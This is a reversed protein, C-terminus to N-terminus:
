YLGTGLLVGGGMTIAPLTDAFIGYLAGMGTGFAFHVIQGGTKKQSQRLRRGSFKTAVGVAVKETADEGPPLSARSLRSVIMYTHGMLVAGALGGMAGVMIGRLKQM